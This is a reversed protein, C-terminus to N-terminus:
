ILNLCKKKIETWSAFYDSFISKQTILHGFWLDAKL